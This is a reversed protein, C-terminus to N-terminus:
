ASSPMRSLTADRPSPSTYLLCDQPQIGEVLLAGKVPKGVDRSEADRRVIRDDVRLNFISSPGRNDVSWQIAVPNGAHVADPLLRNVVVNRLSRRSSRWCLLLGASMTGSVIVLLNVNRLIACVTVFALIVVFVIGQPTLSNRITRRALQSHPM